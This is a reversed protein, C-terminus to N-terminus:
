RFFQGAFRCAKPTAPTWRTAPPESPEPLLDRVQSNRVALWDYIRESPDFRVFRLQQGVESDYWRTPTNGRRNGRRGGAALQPLNFGRM